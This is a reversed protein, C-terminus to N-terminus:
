VIGGAVVRLMESARGLVQKARQGGRMGRAKKGFFDDTARAKARM